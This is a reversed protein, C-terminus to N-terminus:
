INKLRFGCGEFVLEEKRYPYQKCVDPRNKYVACIAKRTKIDFTLEQCPSIKKRKKKSAVNKFVYIQKGRKEFVNYVLAEGHLCCTGCQLCGGEIEERSM